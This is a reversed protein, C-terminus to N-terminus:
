EKPSAVLASICFERAVRRVAKSVCDADLTGERVGEVLPSVTAVLGPAGGVLPPCEFLRVRPNGALDAALVGAFFIDGLEDVLESGAPRFRDCFHMRCLMPRLGQIPCGRFRASYVECRCARCCQGQCELCVREQQNFRDLWALAAAVEDGFLMDMEADTVLPLHSLRDVGDLFAEIAKKKDM